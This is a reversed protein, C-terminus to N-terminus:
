EGCVSDEDVSDNEENTWEYIKFGYIKPIYQQLKKKKFKYPYTLLLFHPFYKGWTCGDLGKIPGKPSYLCVCNFCYVKTTSVKPENSCGIPILPTSCGVRSCSGYEKNLVRELIDELGTTTYIYRQHVLYYLVTEGMFDKSESIDLIANYCSEINSIKKNLGILNFSDSMYSDPIRSLFSHEKKSFFNGAWYANDLPDSSDNSSINQQKM